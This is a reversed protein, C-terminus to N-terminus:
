VYLCGSEKQLAVSDIVKATRSLMFSAKLMVVKATGQQGSSSGNPNRDQIAPAPATLLPGTPAVGELAVSAPGLLQILDGDIRSFWAALYVSLLSWPLAAPKTRLSRRQKFAM